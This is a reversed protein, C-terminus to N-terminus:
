IGREQLILENLAERMAPLTQMAEWNDICAAAGPLAAWYTFPNHPAPQGGIIAKRWLPDLKDTLQSYADCAGAAARAFTLADDATAQKGRFIKIVLTEIVDSHLILADLAPRQSGQGLLRAISKTFPNPV